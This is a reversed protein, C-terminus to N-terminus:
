LTKLKTINLNEYQMHPKLDNPYVKLVDMQFKELIRQTSSFPLAITIIPNREFAQNLIQIDNNKLANMVNSMITYDFAIQFHETRIKPTLKLNTSADEVAQKYANALGSAGLKKGGYYRVVVALINTAGISKLVNLIPLGATGSPEGDDNARSLSGDWGMIWAFCHHRAKPHEKKLNAIIEKAIERTHVLAIYALFKSGKEKYIGTTNGAIETYSDQADM